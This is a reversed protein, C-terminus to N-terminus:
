LVRPTVDVWTGLVVVLNTMHQTQQQAIALNARAQSALNKSAQLADCTTDLESRLMEANPRTSSLDAQAECYDKLLQHCNIDDLSECEESLEGV